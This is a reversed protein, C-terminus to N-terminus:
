VYVRGRRALLLRGDLGFGLPFPWGILVRPDRALPRVTSPAPFARPALASLDAENEQRERSSSSNFMFGGVGHRPLRGCLGFGLERPARTSPPEDAQHTPASTARRSVPGTASAGPALTRLIARDSWRVWGPAGEHPQDLAMEAAEGHFTGAFLITVFFGEKLRPQLVTRHSHRPPLSPPLCFFVSSAGTTRTNSLM